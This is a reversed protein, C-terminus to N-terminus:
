GQLYFIFWHTISYYHCKVGLGPRNECCMPVLGWGWFIVHEIIEISFFSNFGGGRSEKFNFNENFDLVIRAGRYYLNLAIIRFFIETPGPGGWGGGGGWVCVM